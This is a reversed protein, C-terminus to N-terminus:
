VKRSTVSKVPVVEAQREMSEKNHLHQLRRKQTHSLDSPCWTLKLYKSDQKMNKEGKKSYNFDKKILNDSVPKQSTCSPYISPYQIYYSQACGVIIWHYMVLIGAINHLLRDMLHIHYM